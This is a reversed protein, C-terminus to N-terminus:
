ESRSDRFSSEVCANLGGSVADNESSASAIRRRAGAILSWAKLGRVGVLAACCFALGKLSYAGYRFQEFALRRPSGGRAAAAKCLGCAEKAYWRNWPERRGSKMVLEFALLRARYYDAGHMGRLLASNGDLDSTRFYKGVISDIAAFRHRVAVQFGVLLDESHQLGESFCGVELLAERKILSGQLLGFQFPYQVTLSDPFLFPSGPLTLGFEKFLTPGEGQDNIVRMDGFIWAVDDPLSDAAMLLEKTREPVWEDDSDLFAIWKGTAELVGRRRAGSLGGTEKIVRVRDGYWELIADEIKDSSLVDDVVIVEDVRHTQAFISDIARRIYERRNYTPIVASITM